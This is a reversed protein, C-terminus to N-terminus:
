PTPKKAARADAAKERAQAKPSEHTKSVVVGTVANILVEDVGTKGPVTIDFSFVLKGNEEELEEETIKGKPVRALALKRASDPTIRARAMLGPKEEKMTAQAAAQSSAILSACAIAFSLAFLPKPSPM